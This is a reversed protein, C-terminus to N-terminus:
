RIPGSWRKGSWVNCRPQSRLLRDISM